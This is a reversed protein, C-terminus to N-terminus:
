PPSIGVLVGLQRFPAIKRRDRQSIVHLAQLNTPSIGSM